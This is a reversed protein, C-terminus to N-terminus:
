GEEYATAKGVVIWKPKNRLEEKKLGDISGRAISRGRSIQARGERQSWKSCDLLGDIGQLDGFKLIVCKGGSSTWGRTASIAAM